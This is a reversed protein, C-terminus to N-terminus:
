YQLLSGERQARVVAKHFCLLSLPVTAAAFLLLIAIQPLVEALDQGKLLVGRLGELGHTIPLLQCLPKLWEPLKSVPYFVGGLLFFVTGVLFTIPEGKKFVMTFSAAIVGLASFNATTALLIAAALLLSGRLEIGYLLAAAALYIGTTLTAWLFSWASSAAVIAAVRAPTMLLAELTGMVQENRIAAAFGRFGTQFYSMQAFGVAAYPLFGGFEEFEPRTGILESAFFLASVTLLVSLVRLGFDLRYSVAMAADRILFAKIARFLESV